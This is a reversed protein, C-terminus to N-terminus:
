AIIHIYKLKSASKLIVSIRKYQELVFIRIFELCDEFYVFYLNKHFLLDILGEALNEAGYIEIVFSKFCSLRSWLQFTNCKPTRAKKNSCFNNGNNIIVKLM